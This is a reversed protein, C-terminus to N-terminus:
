LEALKSCLAHPVISVDCSRTACVQMSRLRSCYVLRQGAEAENRGSGSTRASSLRGNTNTPSLMAECIRPASAHKPPLSGPPPSQAALRLHVNLHICRYLRWRSSSIRALTGGFAVSITCM